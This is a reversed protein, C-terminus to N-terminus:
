YMTSESSLKMVSWKWTLSSLLTLTVVNFKLKWSTLVYRRWGFWQLISEAQHGKTRWVCSSFSSWTCSEGVPPLQLREAGRIALLRAVKDCTELQKISVNSCTGCWSIQWIDHHLSFSGSPTCLDASSLRCQSFLLRFPIRRSLKCQLTFHWLGGVLRRSISVQPLCM